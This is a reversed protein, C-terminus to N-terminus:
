LEEEEEQSSDEQLTELAAIEALLSYALGVSRDLLKAVRQALEREGANQAEYLASMLYVMQDLAEQYADLFPDRGNFPQLPVGYRAVGLEHRAQMDQVFREMVDETPEPVYRSPLGRDSLRSLLMPWSPPHENAVPPAQEEIRGSM